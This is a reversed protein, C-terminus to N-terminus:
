ELSQQLAMSDFCFKAQQWLETPLRASLLCLHQPPPPLDAISETSALSVSSRNHAELERLLKSAHVALLSPFIERRLLALSAECELSMAVLTPLLINKFREEAFYKVPM